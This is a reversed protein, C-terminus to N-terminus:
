RKQQGQGQTTGTGNRNSDNSQKNKDQDRESDTRDKRAANLEDRKQKYSNIDPIRNM